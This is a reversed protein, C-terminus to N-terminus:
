SQILAKIKKRWRGPSMMFPELFEDQIAGCSSTASQNIVTLLETQTFALLHSHKSASARLEYVVILATGDAIKQDRATLDSSDRVQIPVALIRQSVLTTELFALMDVGCENTAVAVNLGDEVLEDMLRARIALLETELNM